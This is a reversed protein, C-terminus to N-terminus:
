RHLLIFCDCDEEMDPPIDVDDGVPTDADEDPPEEADLLTTAASGLLRTM